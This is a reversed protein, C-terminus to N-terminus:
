VLTGCVCSVFTACFAKSNKENKVKGVNNV